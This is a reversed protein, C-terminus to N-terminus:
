GATPTEEEPSPSPFCSVAISLGPQRRQSPPGPTTGSPPCEPGNRPPSCHQLEQPRAPREARQPPHWPAQWGHLHARPLNGQGLADRSRKLTPLDPVVQTVNMM